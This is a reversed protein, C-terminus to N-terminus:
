GNMLQELEEKDKQYEMQLRKNKEILQLNLKEFKAKFDQQSAHQQADAASMANTTQKGFTSNMLHDQDLNTTKITESEDKTSEPQAHAPAALSQQPARSPEYSITKM